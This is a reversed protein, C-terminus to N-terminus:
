SSRGMRATRRVFDANMNVLLEEWANMGGVEEVVSKTRDYSWSDADDRAKDEQDSEGYSDPGQGYVHIATM